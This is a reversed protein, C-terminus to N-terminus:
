IAGFCRRSAVQSASADSARSDRSAIFACMVFETEGKGTVEISM